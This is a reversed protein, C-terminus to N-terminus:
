STNEIKFFLRVRDVQPDVVDVLVPLRDESDQHAVLLRRHVSVLM